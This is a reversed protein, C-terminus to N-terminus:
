LKKILDYNRETFGLNNYFAHAKKNPGFVEVKVVDCRISKLHNEIREILQKGIGQGRYEDLVFLESIRGSPITVGSMKGEKDIPQKYGAIFGIIKGQDEAVYIKGEYKRIQKLMENTFWVDGNQAYKLRQMDDIEELYEGFLAMLQMIQDKDRDQYERIDMHTPNYRDNLLM